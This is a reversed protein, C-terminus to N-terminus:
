PIIRWLNVPSFSLVSSLVGCFGAKCSRPPYPLTGCVAFGVVYTPTSHAPTLINARTVVLRRLVAVVSFGLNGQCHYDDLPLAFRIEIGFPITSISLLNINRGEEM